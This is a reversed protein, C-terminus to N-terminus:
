PSNRPSLLSPSQTTLTDRPVARGGDPERAKHGGVPDLTFPLVNWAQGSM